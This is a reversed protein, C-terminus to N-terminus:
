YVYPILMKTSRMYDTYETGFHGTLIKEEALAQAYSLVSLAVLFLVFVYSGAVIEGGVFCLILGLYIPHRIYAYIGTKVLAHRNKIQSESAHTWNAGLEKRAAFSVWVGLSALIFGLLQIALSQEFQWFQLGAIQVCMLIWMTMITRTRVWQKFSTTQLPTKATDSTQKSAIWYVFRAAFLVVTVIRIITDTNLM